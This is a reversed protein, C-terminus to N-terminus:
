KSKNNSNKPKTSLICLVGNWIVPYIFAGYMYICTCIYNSFFRRNTRVMLSDVLIGAYVLYRQILSRHQQRYVGHLWLLHQSIATPTILQHQITCVRPLITPMIDRTPDPYSASFQCTQGLRSSPFYVSLSFQVQDLLQLRGYRTQDLNMVFRVRLTHACAGLPQGEKRSALRKSAHQKRESSGCKAQSSQNQRHNPTHRRTNEGVERCFTPVQEEM